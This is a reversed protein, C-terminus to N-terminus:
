GVFAFVNETQGKILFVNGIRPKLSLSWPSLLQFTPSEFLELLVVFNRDQSCFLLLFLEKSQLVILLVYQISHRVVTGRVECVHDGRLEALAVATGMKCHLFSLSLPQTVQEPRGSVLRHPPFQFGTTVRSGLTKVM